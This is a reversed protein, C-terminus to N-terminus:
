VIVGAVAEQVPFLKVAVIVTFGIGTPVAVGETFVIQEAVPGAIARLLVTLPVDYLQVTENVSRVPPLLQTDDQPEEIM